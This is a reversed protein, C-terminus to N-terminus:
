QMYYDTERIRTFGLGSWYSRLKEKAIEFGPEDKKTHLPFPKLLTADAGYNNILWSVVELGLNNKRYQENVEVSHIFPITQECEFLEPVQQWANNCQDSHADLIDEIDYEGDLNEGIRYFVCEGIQVEEWVEEEVESILM